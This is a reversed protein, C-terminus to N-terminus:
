PLKSHQCQYIAMQSEGFFVSQGEVFQKIRNRVVEIGRDDSANLEMVMFPYYKGYLEKACATITSTKGTGSPGYFLLHPVCRNNIFTKLTSIIREHSIIDNLNSPRYKEIWPLTETKSKTLM